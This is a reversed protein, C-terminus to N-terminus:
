KLGALQQTYYDTPQGAKTAYQIAQQYYNKAQDNNGSGAYADGLAGASDANPQIHYAQQAPSVAKDPYGMAMLSLSESLYVKYKDKSNTAEQALQSYDAVVKDVSSGSRSEDDLKIIKDNITQQNSVVAAPKAKHQNSVWFYYGVGAGALVLVVALVVWPWSRRKRDHVSPTKIVEYFPSKQEAM